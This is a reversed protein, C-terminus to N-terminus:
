QNKVGDTTYIDDCVTWYNEPLHTKFFGSIDYQLLLDVQFHRLETVVTGIANMNEPCMACSSSKRDTYNRSWPKFGSPVLSCFGLVTIDWDTKSICKWVFVRWIVPSQPWRTGCLVQNWCRAGLSCVANLLIRMTIYAYKLVQRSTM